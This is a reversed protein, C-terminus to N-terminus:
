EGREMRALEEDSMSRYDRRTPTSAPLTPLDGATQRPGIGVRDLIAMAAILRTKNPEATGNAVSVLYDASSPAGAVLRAIARHLIFQGSQAIDADARAEWNESAVWYRITRDPIVLDPDADALLRAVHGINRGADSVWLQYALLRVDDPWEAHGGRNRRIAMNASVLVDDTM